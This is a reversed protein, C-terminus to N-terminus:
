LLMIKIFNQRFIDLQGEQYGLNNKDNKNKEPNRLLNFDSLKLNMEPFILINKPKIDFHSYNSKNLLELSEVIQKAFFRLLNDGVIEFPWKYILNLLNKNHLYYNFEGLSRFPAKEMLILHYTEGEVSKTFINNVRVIRPSKLELIFNSEDIIGDEEKKILKAIYSKGNYIVEKVLGHVGKM